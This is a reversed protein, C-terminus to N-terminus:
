EQAVASGSYSMVTTGNKSCTEPLLKAAEACAVTEAHQTPDGKPRVANNRAAVITDGRENVVLAGFPHRGDDRAARALEIARRLFILDQESVSETNM